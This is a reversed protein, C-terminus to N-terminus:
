IRLTSVDVHFTMRVRRWSAMRKGSILVSNNLSHSYITCIDRHSPFSSSAIRKPWFHSSVVHKDQQQKQKEQEEQQKRVAEWEDPQEEKERSSSAHDGWSSGWVAGGVQDSELYRNTSAGWGGDEDAASDLGSEFGGFGDDLDRPKRISPSV